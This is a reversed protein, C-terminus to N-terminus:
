YTICDIRNLLDKKIIDYLPSLYHQGDAITELLEFSYEAVPVFLEDFTTWNEAVPTNSQHNTHIIFDAKTLLNKGILIPSDMQSRDNLNFEVDKIINNAINVTLRVVPRSENNNSDAQKVTLSNSVPLKYQRDGHTFNVMSGNLNIDTAHLCCMDAGTDIKASVPQNANFGMIILEQEFGIDISEHLSNSHTTLAATLPTLGYGPTVSWGFVLKKNVDERLTYSSLAISANSKQIDGWNIDSRHQLNHYTLGELVLESPFKFQGLLFTQQLDSISEFQIM